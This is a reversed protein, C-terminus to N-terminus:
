LAPSIVKGFDYCKYHWCQVRGEGFSSLRLLTREQSTPCHLARRESDVNLAESGTGSAGIVLFTLRHRLLVHRSDAAPTPMVRLPLICLRLVQRSVQVRRSMHVLTLGSIIM